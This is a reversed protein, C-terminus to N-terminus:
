SAKRKEERDCFGELLDTIRVLNSVVAPDTSLEAALTILQRLRETLYQRREKQREIEEQLPRMVEDFGIRVNKLIDFRDRDIERRISKRKEEM